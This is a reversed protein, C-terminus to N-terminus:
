KPASLMVAYQQWCDDPPRDQERFVLGQLNLGCLSRLDASGRFQKGGISAAADEVRPAGARTFHIPVTIGLDDKGAGLANRLSEECRKVAVTVRRLVSEGFHSALVPESCLQKAPMWAWPSFASARSASPFPDVATKGGLFLLELDSGQFPSRVMLDPLGDGNQDPVSKALTGFRGPTGRPRPIRTVHDPLFGKNGGYMIVAEGGSSGVWPPCNLILDDFGDKNLDKAEGLECADAGDVHLSAAKGGDTKWELRVGTPDPVSRVRRQGLKTKAVLEVPKKLAGRAATSSKVVAEGSPEDKALLPKSEARELTLDPVKFGSEEPGAPDALAAAAFLVGAIGVPWVRRM